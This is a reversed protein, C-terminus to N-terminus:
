VPPVYHVGINIFYCLLAIEALEFGQELVDSIGVKVPIVHLSQTIVIEDLEEAEGLHADFIQHIGL